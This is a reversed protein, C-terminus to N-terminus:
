NSLLILRLNNLCENVSLRQIEKRNRLNNFIKKITYTYNEPGAIAIYVLGVPKEESGGEPGAIGSIAISWDSSLERKVGVAMAEAVEASVAGYNSILKESVNLLSIKLENSYAIVGGKFVKSSGAISTISSSLLGGTCSEAFVLSEGRQSLKKILISPLNDDNEGFIFKSFDRELQKKIPNILKNAEAENKAKATIRLKVEGLNAYPAVTPNDLALLEIIKEALDSENIGFFKLTNSFFIYEESFNDKIYSHATEKWMEKIQGTTKNYTNAINNLRKMESSITSM